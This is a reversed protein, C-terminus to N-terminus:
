QVQLNLTLADLRGLTQLLQYVAVKEDFSAVTFNIQSDNLETEADLVNILTEQGAARRKRRSDAVESSINVANALLAVRERETRLNQWATRVQQEVSRAAAVHDQRRAETEFAAEAQGAQTAFGNFIDWTARFGISSNRELDTDGEINQEFNYDAELDVVPFLEGRVNREREKALDINLGSNVLAGNDRLAINVARDISSPVADIPPVPDFMEEPNAPFGFVELFATMANQLDGEAGVLRERATQLRSKAQLADVAIGSGRTVRENELNLLRQVRAENEKLLDVLRRQRLVDIYAEIGGFVATQRAGGLTVEDLRANLEATRVDSLNREGDFLNQTITVGVTRATLVAPDGSPSARTSDNATRQRAADATISVQPLLAGEAVGVGQRGAEATNEAARISPNELLLRVLEQELPAATATPALLPGATVAFALALASM